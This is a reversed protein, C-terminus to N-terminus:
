LMGGRLRPKFFHIIVNGLWILKVFVETKAVVFLHAYKNAYNCFTM